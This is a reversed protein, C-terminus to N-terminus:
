GPLALLDEHHVIATLDGAACEALRRDLYATAATTLDPQQECAASVWGTLWAATLPAQDRGLRWPSPERQVTAGAREFADAAVAVASPGLLRRGDVTRRQHANFASTLATDLLHPPDLEVRGVVSLVFLASCGAKACAEVLATLEAETLLDLLASGTVLAAGALEDATLATIDRLETAAEPVSGAAVALLLPDQDTLIWEQRGPLRPSLWRGMSGTGSGLDRVVLDRTGLYVRLPELLAEARAQADAPERLALWQPTFDSM